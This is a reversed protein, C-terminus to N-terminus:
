KDENDERKKRRICMAVEKRLASEQDRCDELGPRRFVRGLIIILMIIIIILILIQVPIIIIRIRIRIRIIIIITIM